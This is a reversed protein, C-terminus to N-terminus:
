QTFLWSKVVLKDLFVGYDFKSSIQKFVLTVTSSVVRVVVMFIALSARKEVAQYASFLFETSNSFTGGIFTPKIHTENFAPLYRSLAEEQGSM